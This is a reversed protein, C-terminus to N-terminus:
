GDAEALGTWPPSQTPKAGVNAALKSLLDRLTGLDAEGIGSRLRADFEAAVDLLATFIAEGSENLGV